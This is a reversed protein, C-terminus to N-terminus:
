CPSESLPQGFVRQPRAGGAQQLRACEATSRRVLRARVRDLSLQTAIGGADDHRAFPPRHTPGSDPEDFADPGIAAARKSVIGFCRRVTAGVRGADVIVHECGRMM